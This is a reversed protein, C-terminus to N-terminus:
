VLPVSLMVRHGTWQTKSSSHHFGTVRLWRKWRWTWCIHLISFRVWFDEVLPRKSTQRIMPEARDPNQSCTCPTSNPSPLPPIETCSSARQKEVCVFVFVFVWVWVFRGATDASSFFHKNTKRSLGSGVAEGGWYGRRVKAYDPPFVVQSSFMASQKRQWLSPTLLEKHVAKKPLWSEFRKPKQLDEWWIFAIQQQRGYLEYTTFFRPIIM